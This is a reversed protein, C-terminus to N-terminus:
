PSFITMGILAMCVLLIKSVLETKWDLKWGFKERWSKWNEAICVSAPYNQFLLVVCRFNQKHQGLVEFMQKGPTVKKLLVICFSIYHELCVVLHCHPTALLFQKLFHLLQKLKNIILLNYHLYLFDVQLILLPQFFMSNVRHVSPCLYIQSPLVPPPPAHFLM